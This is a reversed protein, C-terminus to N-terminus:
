QPGWQGALKNDWEIAGVLKGVPLRIECRDIVM